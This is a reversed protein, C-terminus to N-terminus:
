IENIREWNDCCKCFGKQHIRMQREKLEKEWDEIKPPQPKPM